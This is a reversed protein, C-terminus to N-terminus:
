AALSKVEVIGFRRIGYEILDDRRYLVKKGSNFRQRPGTGKSDDKKITNLTLWGGTVKSVETRCVVAPLCEAVMAKFEKEEETLPREWDVKSM